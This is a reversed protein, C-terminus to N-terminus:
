KKYQKRLEDLFLLATETEGLIGSASRLRSIVDEFPANPGLGLKHVLKELDEKWEPPYHDGATGPQGSDSSQSATMQDKEAEAWPGCKSVIHELLTQMRHQYTHDALVRKRAREAIVAREEPRALYYDIAALMEPLTEFCALEGDAFLEPMLGRKDVLQFAGMCALEFTRPNVFDGKSVLEDAQVSSHLNINIKSANYIKVSEKENIRTGGRQINAALISENEWDSGWIKFNRGALSRFALRRNPYGAGLFAIDAGYERQEAPDLLLKQHFSPLAAMPLYLANTQGTEALKSLFPEKQIVAFVDYLPAYSQWYSFIRYDEVFWMATKIGARRLRQLLSRNVPAQALALVLHPELSEVQALIAQTIVQFFSNELRATQSPPLGLRSLGTFAPYMQPADFVQVNHGIDSLASACYRGIPLSGGYMPLVVLIRLAKMLLVEVSAVDM